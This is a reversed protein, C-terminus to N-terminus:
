FRASSLIYPLAQRRIRTAALTIEPMSMASFLATLEVGPAKHLIDITSNLDRDVGTPNTILGVRKGQLAAFGSDRLVEIGVKVLAGAFVATLTLALITNFIRKRNM